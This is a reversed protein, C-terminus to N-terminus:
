ARALMIPKLLDLNRIDLWWEDWGKMKKAILEKPFLEADTRWPEFSGASFYCVVKKGRAQLAQITEMPTDFLDLDYMEVEFSLDLEGQLQWQWTTGPKPQWIMENEAEAFSLILLYSMLYLIARM